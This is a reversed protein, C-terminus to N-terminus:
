VLGQMFSVIFGRRMCICFYLMHNAIMLSGVDQLSARLFCMHKKEDAHKGATKETWSGPRGNWCALGYIQQVCCGKRLIGGQRNGQSWNLGSWRMKMLLLMFSDETQEKTETAYISMYIEFALPEVIWLKRTLSSIGVLDLNILPESGAHKEFFTIFCRLRSRVHVDLAYRSGLCHDILPNRKGKCYMSRKSERPAGCTNKAQGAMSPCEEQGCACAIWVDFHRLLMSCVTRSCLLTSFQLSIYMCVVPDAGLEKRQNEHSCHATELLDDWVSLYKWGAGSDKSEHCKQNMTYKWM